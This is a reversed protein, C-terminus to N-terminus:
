TSGKIFVGILVALVVAICVPLIPDVRVWWRRDAFRKQRLEDETQLEMLRADRRAIIEAIRAESEQTIRMSELDMLTKYGDPGYKALSENLKELAEAYRKIHEPDLLTSWTSQTDRVHPEEPKNM